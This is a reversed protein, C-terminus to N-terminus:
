VKLRINLYDKYNINRKNKKKLYINVIYNIKEENYDKVLKNYLLIHKIFPKELFNLNEIINRNIILEKKNRIKTNIKKKLNRNEVNRIKQTNQNKKSIKQNIM